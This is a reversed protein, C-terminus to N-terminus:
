SMNFLEVHDMIVSGTRMTLDAEMTDSTVLQGGWTEIDEGAIKINRTLLLVEGRIDIGNYSSATSTSAGWHYYQLPTSFVAVGTAKTYSTLTVDDSATYTYSTPLLALRDGAVFDLNPEITISTAGRPAPARLRTLTKARKAGFMKIRGVNAIVKNGAEITDDYALSASEKLGHLTIKATAEFPADERGIALQGARIFIHKARLHIDGKGQGNQFTLWGNIILKRYIPINPGDELDYIMNWAPPITVDDGDVPVTGNPWDLPNSWYRKFTETPADELDEQCPGDCRHGTLTIKRNEQTYQTLNKGNIVLHFEEKGPAPYLINMGTKM